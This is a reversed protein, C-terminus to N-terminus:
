VNSLCLVSVNTLPRKISHVHKCLYTCIHLIFDCEIVSNIIKSYVGVYTCIYTRINCPVLHAIIQSIIRLYM